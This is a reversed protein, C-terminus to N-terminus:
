ANGLTLLYNSLSFACPLLAFRYGPWALPSFGVKCTHIVLGLFSFGRILDLEDSFFAKRLPGLFESRRRYFPNLVRHLVSSAFTLLSAFSFQKLPLHFTGSKWRFWWCSSKYLRANSNQRWRRFLMQLLTHNECESVTGDIWIIANM